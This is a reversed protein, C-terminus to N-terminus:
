PTNGGSSKHSSAPLALGTNILQELDGRFTVAFSVPVTTKGSTASGQLKFSLAHADGEDRRLQINLATYSLNRLAKGLNDRAESSVGGMALNDLIPTPDELCISGTEGPVSYLYSDGLAIREGNRIRLPLKGHLRGTATGRFGALRNLAQGADIDDLFLTFGANLREPNLFLAYLRAQGGCLDAGAETVLYSKETARISAFVNTMTVNGLELRDARPFMPQIDAHPGLGQVGARLRLNDLTIDKEAATLAASIDSLTLQATWSPLALGNTTAAHAEFGVKGSFTLNTVAPATARRLIAGLLPDQESFSVPAMAADVSWGESASGAFRGVIRWSTGDLGLSFTGGASRHWLSYDVDARLTYPWDLMRGYARLTLDCNRSRQFGYDVTATTRKVLARQEPTLLPGLDFTRADFSLLPLIMPLFAVFLVSLLLLAGLVGLPIWLWLRRPNRDEKEEEM